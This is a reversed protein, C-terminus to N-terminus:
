QAGAKLEGLQGGVQGDYSRGKAAIEFSVQVCTAGVKGGEEEKMLEEALAQRRAEQADAEAAVEAAMDDQWKLALLHRSLAAFVPELSPQMCHACLLHRCAPISHPARASPPPRCLLGCLLCVHALGAGLAGQIGRAPALVHLTAACAQEAPTCSSSRLGASGPQQQQTLAAAATTLWPM